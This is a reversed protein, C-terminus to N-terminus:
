KGAASEGARRRVKSRMKKNGAALSRRSSTAAAETESARECYQWDAQQPQRRSRGLCVAAAAAALLPPWTARADATENTRESARGARESAQASARESADSRILPPRLSRAFAIAFPSFLFFYSAEKRCGFRRAGDHSLASRKPMPGLSKCQRMLHSRQNGDGGGDGGSM